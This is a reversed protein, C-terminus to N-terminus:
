PVPVCLGGDCVQGTRCALTCGGCHNPNALVDVCEDGCLAQGEPCTCEGGRCFQGPSCVVDCAGCHYVSTCLDVCSASCAQLGSACSAVCVGSSCYLSGICGPRCTTLGNECVCADPGCDTTGGCVLGCAGCHNPDSSPDVCEGDCLMQGRPCQGDTGGSGGDATPDSSTGAQSAGASAAGLSGGSGSAGGTHVEASDHNATGGCGVALGVTVSLALRRAVVFSLKARRSTHDNQGRHRPPPGWPVCSAPGPRLYVFRGAPPPRGRRLWRVSDPRRGPGDNRRLARVTRGAQGAGGGVHSRDRRARLVIARRTYRCKRLGGAV